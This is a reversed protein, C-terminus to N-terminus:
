VAFPRSSASLKQTSRGSHQSVMDKLDSIEGEIHGMLGTTKAILRQSEFILCQIDFSKAEGKLRLCGNCFEDIDISGSGDRDLLKFMSRADYPSIDLAELLHTMSRDKFIKEIEDRSVSGSSDEDIREFITKIHNVYGM